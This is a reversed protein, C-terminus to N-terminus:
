NIQILISRVLRELDVLINEVVSGEKILFAQNMQLTKELTRLKHSVEAAGIQATRGALRHALATVRDSDHQSFAKELYIIDKETETVFQKLQQNLLSEDGMAMQGMPSKKILEFDFDQSGLYKIIVQLLDAEEFPKALLDDFGHSRISDKEDPLVHATLAVIKLQKCNKNRLQACLELGHMEPMNLDMLVLSNDDIETKLLERADQMCHHEIANATLIDDILKLIYADDDVVFVKGLLQNKLTLHNFLPESPKNDALPFALNVVFESGKGPESEVKLSGKMLDILSKTISLGLGTGSVPNAQEFENFIRELNEATIGIGTDKITFQCQYIENANTYDFNFSVEGEETFKIANGILNYLIQKLRFADGNLTLDLDVNNTFQFSINKQDAQTQMSGVVEKLLDHMNFPQNVLEYKGSLLKSYDLVENVIQHLHVASKYIIEVSENKASQKKRIQESFGLISQLPTRIEHSMNSLFRQKVRSLQEANDKAQQLQLRLRNSRGVDIFILYSLIGIIILFIVLIIIIRKTASFLETELLRSTQEAENLEDEEFDRLMRYFQETTLESYNILNQEAAYLQNLQNRYNRDLSDIFMEINETIEPRNARSITDVRVNQEEEIIKSETALNLTDDTDKEKKGFLRQLFSRKKRTDGAEEGPITTTTILKTETTVVNSDIEQRILAVLENLESYGKSFKQPNTLETYLGLYQTLIHDYNDIILRMSDIRSSYTLNSNCLIELSDLSKILDQSVPRLKSIEAPQYNIFQQREIQNIRTFLYSINNILRIKENPKTFQEVSVFLRNFAFDSLLWTTIVSTTAIVLIAILKVKISAPNKDASKSM